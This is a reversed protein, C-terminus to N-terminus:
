TVTRRNHILPEDRIRYIHAKDNKKRQRPSKSIREQEASQRNDEQIRRMTREIQGRKAVSHVFRSMSRPKIAQFM